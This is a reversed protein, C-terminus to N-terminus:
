TTAPTDLTFTLDHTATHPYCLAARVVYFIMCAGPGEGTQLSDPAPEVNRVQLQECESNSESAATPSGTTGSRDAMVGVAPLASRAARSLCQTDACPHFRGSCRGVFPRVPSAQCRLGSSCGSSLLELEATPVLQFSCLKMSTPDLTCRNRAAAVHCTEAIRTCHPIRYRGCCPITTCL